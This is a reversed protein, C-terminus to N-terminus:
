ELEDPTVLPLASTDAGELAYVSVLDEELTIRLIGDKVTGSMTSVGAKITIAGASEDDVTWETIPGKNDEGWDLYGTGDANLTTTTGVFEEVAIHNGALDVCYFVYEGAYKSLPNESSGPKSKGCAALAFVIVVAFLLGMMRKWTKM